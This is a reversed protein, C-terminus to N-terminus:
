NAYLPPLVLDAWSNNLDDWSIGAASMEASIEDILSRHTEASIKGDIRDDNIKMVRALFSRGEM